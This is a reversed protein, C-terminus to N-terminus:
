IFVLTVSILQESAATKGRDQLLPFYISNTINEKENLIQHQRISFRGDSVEWISSIRGSLKLM